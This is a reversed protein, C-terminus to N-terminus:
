GSISWGDFTHFTFQFDRAGNGSYTVSWSAAGHAKVVADLVGRVTTSQARVSFTRQGLTSPTMSGASSGRGRLEPQAAFRVERLAEVLSARDIDFRTVAQNLVNSPDLVAAKPRVHIVGDDSTYVYRPERAVIDNLIDAVTRGPTDVGPAIPGPQWSQDSLAEYGIPAGVAWALEALGRQLSYPTLPLGVVPARFPVRLAAPDITGQATLTASMAVM